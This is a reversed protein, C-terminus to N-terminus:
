KLLDLVRKVQSATVTLICGNKNDHSVVAIRVNDSPNSRFIHVRTHNPTEMVQEVENAADNERTRRIHCYTYDDNRFYRDIIEANLGVVKESVSGNAPCNKVISNMAFKVLNIGLDELNSFNLNENKAFQQLNAFQSQAQQSVLATEESADIPLSTLLGDYPAALLNKIEETQGNKSQYM